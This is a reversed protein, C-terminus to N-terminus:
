QCYSPGCNGATCSTIPISYPWIIDFPSEGPQTPEYYMEECNVIVEYAPFDQHVGSLNYYLANPDTADIILSLDWGLAPASAIFPNRGHAEINVQLTTPGLWQTSVNGVPVDTRENLLLHGDYYPPVTDARAQSTLDDNQDLSSTPDFQKTTGAQLLGSNDIIGGTGNDYARIPNVTVVSRLKYDQSHYPDPNRGTGTHSHPVNGNYIYRGLVLQIPGDVNDFPLVSSVQIEVTMPERSPGTEPLSPCMTASGSILLGTHGGYSDDVIVRIKNPQGPLLYNQPTYGRVLRLPTGSMTGAGTGVGMSYGNFQLDVIKDDSHLELAIQLTTANLPV